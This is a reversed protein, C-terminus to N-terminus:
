RRPKTPPPPPPSFAPDCRCSASPAPQGPILNRDPGSSMDLVRVTKRSLNLGRKANEIKKNGMSKNGM